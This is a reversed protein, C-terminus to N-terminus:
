FETNNPNISEWEYCAPCQWFFSKAKFKCRGCKYLSLTEDYNILIDKIILVETRESENLKKQNIYSDIMLSAVKSSPQVRITEKLYEFSAEASDYVHM